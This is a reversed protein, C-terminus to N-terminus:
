KPRTNAPMTPTTITWGHRFFAVLTGAAQVKKRNCCNDSATCNTCTRGADRCACGSRKATSRTQCTSHRTCSCCPTTIGGGGVGRIRRAGTASAMTRPRKNEHRSADDLAKVANERGKQTKETTSGTSMGPDVYTSVSIAACDSPASDEHRTLEASGIPRKRASRRRRSKVM